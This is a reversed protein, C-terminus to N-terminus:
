DEGGLEVRLLMRSNNIVFVLWCAPFVTLLFYSIKAAIFALLVAMGILGVTNWLYRAALILSNRLATAVGADYTVIMPCAYLYLCALLLVGAFDAALGVWVTTPITEAALMPLTLSAAVLPVAMLAGLALSRLYFKTFSGIYSGVSAPERYIIRAVQAHLALWGPAITFIGVVLAPILFGLFFIGLSLLCTLTFLLGALILRPLGEWLSLATEKVYTHQNLEAYDQEKM